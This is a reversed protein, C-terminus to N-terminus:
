QWITCHDIVRLTYIVKNLSENIPLTEYNVNYWHIYKFSNDMLSICRQAQEKTECFIITKATMNEACGWGSMFKDTAKVVYNYKSFDFDKFDEENHSVRLAKKINKEKTTM